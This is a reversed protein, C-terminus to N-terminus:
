GQTFSIRWRSARPEDDHGRAIARVAVATPPDSAGRDTFADPDSSVIGLHGFCSRADRWDTTAVTM